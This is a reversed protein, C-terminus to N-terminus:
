RWMLEEYIARHASAMAEVSHRELAIKRGNEALARARNNGGFVEILATALAEPSMAPIGIAAGVEVLEDMATGTAVIAPVGATLGELIVMPIDTKAHTTEAPLVQCDATALLEHFNPVDGFFRVQGQAVHRALNAEISRLVAKSASTKPRCAFVFIVNRRALVMPVSEAVVAAASSFELDGAFLVMPTRPPLGFSVRTREKVASSLNELPNVGPPIHFVKIPLGRQAVADSVQRAASSSWTIVRDAFLGQVLASANDPLSMITQVMAVDPHRKRVLRVAKTTSGNPSFFFHMIPPVNSSMLRGILRIKDFMPVTFSVSKRFIELSEVNPLDIPRGRATMAAIRFDTLERALLYPLLKGSDNFPPALPKSVFLIDPIRSGM